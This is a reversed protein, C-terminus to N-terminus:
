RKLKRSVFACKSMHKNAAEQHRQLEQELCNVEEKLVQIEEEARIEAYRYASQILLLIFSFYILQQLTKMEEKQIPEEGM